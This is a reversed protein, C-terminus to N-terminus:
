ITAVYDITGANPCNFVFGTETISQAAKETQKVGGVYYKIYITQDTYGSPFPTSYTITNNGVVVAVGAGRRTRSSEETILTDTNSLTYKGGTSM